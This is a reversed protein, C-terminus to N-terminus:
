TWYAGVLKVLTLLLVTIATVATVTKTVIFRKPKMEADTLSLFAFFSSVWYVYTVLAAIIPGSMDPGVGGFNVTKTADSTM